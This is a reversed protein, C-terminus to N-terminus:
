ELFVLLSTEYIKRYLEKSRASALLWIKWVTVIVDMQYLVYIYTNQFLM